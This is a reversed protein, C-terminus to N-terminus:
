NDKIKITAASVRKYPEPIKKKYVLKDDINIYDIEHVDIINQNLKINNYEPSLNHYYPREYHSACSYKKNLLDLYTFYVKSPKIKNFSFIKSIIM